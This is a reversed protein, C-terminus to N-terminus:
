LVTVQHELQFLPAMHHSLLAPRLHAVTITKRQRIAMNPIHLIHQHLKDHPHITRHMLHSPPHGEARDTTPSTRPSLPRLLWRYTLPRAQLYLTIRLLLERILYVM